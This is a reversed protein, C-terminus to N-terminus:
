KKEQGRPATPASATGAAETRPSLVARVRGAPNAATAPGGEVRFLEGRNDWTITAGTIEDVIAGGRLRRVVANGAFRLTDSRGDFDIREASAEVWEDVGDRKQRFTAPRGTAGQAQATRFGDPTESIEVREARIQMTGQSILVNGNFTVVRTKLDASGPKDAEVVMPQSRDAKEANAPGQGLGLTLALVWALCWALGSARVRAPFLPFLPLSLPNPPM